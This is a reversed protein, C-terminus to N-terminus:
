PSLGDKGPEIRSEPSPRPAGSPPPASHPAEPQPPEQQEPPRQQSQAHELDQAHAAGPDERQRPEQQEPPRQQSQVRELGHGHAPQSGHEHLGGTMTAITIEVYIGLMGALGAVVMWHIHGELRFTHSLIPDLLLGVATGIAAAKLVRWPERFSLVSPALLRTVALLAWLLFFPPLLRDLFDSWVIESGLDPNYANRLEAFSLATQDLIVAGYKQVAERMEALFQAEASAFLPLVIKAQSFRSLFYFPHLLLYAFAWLGFLITTVRNLGVRGAFGYAAAQEQRDLPAIGKHFQLLLAIEVLLASILFITSASDFTLYDYYVAFSLLLLVIFEVGLYKYQEGLITKTLSRVKRDAPIGVNRMLRQLAGFVATEVYGLTLIAVALGLILLAVQAVEAFGVYLAVHTLLAQLGDSVDPPLIAAASFEQVRRKGDFIFQLTPILTQYADFILLGLTMLAFITTFIKIRLLDFRRDDEDEPDPEGGSTWWGILRRHGAAIARAPAGAARAASVLIPQIRPWTSYLLWLGWLSLLAFLAFRYTKELQVARLEDDLSALAIRPLASIASAEKLESYAAATDGSRLHHGAFALLAREKAVPAGLDNALKRAIDLFYEESRADGLQRFTDAFTLAKEFARPIAGARRLQRVANDYAAFGQEPDGLKFYVGGLNNLAESEGVLDHGSSFTSVAREFKEKAQPLNGSDLRVIGQDNLLRGITGPQKAAEAAQLGRELQAEAQQQQNLDLYRAALTLRADAEDALAGSRQFQGIAEALMAEGDADGIKLLETGRQAAIAAKGQEDSAAAFGEDARRLSDFSAWLKDREFEVIGRQYYIRGRVDADAALLLARDFAAMSLDFTSKSGLVVALNAELEVDSPNTKQAGEYISVADGCRRDFQCSLAQNFRAAYSPSAKQSAEFEGRARGFDHDNLAALGSAFKERAEGAAGGAHDYDELTKRYPSYFFDTKADPPAAACEVAGTLLFVVISAPAVALSLRFINRAV